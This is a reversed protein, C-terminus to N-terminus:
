TGVPPPLITSVTAGTPSGEAGERHWLTPPRQPIPPKGESRVQLLPLDTLAHRCGALRAEGPPAKM